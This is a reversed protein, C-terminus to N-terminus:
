RSCLYKPSFVFIQCSEENTQQSLCASKRCLLPTAGKKTPFSRILVNKKFFQREDSVNNTPNQFGLGLHHSSVSVELDKESFSEKNGNKKKFKEFM